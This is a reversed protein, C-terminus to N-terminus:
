IKEGDLTIGNGLSRGYLDSHEPNVVTGQTLTNGSETINTMTVTGVNATGVIIGVRWGDSNVEDGNAYSITNGTATCNSVTATAAFQGAIAGTSNGGIITSGTVSCGTVTAPTSTYGILGGAYGDTCEVSSDVLKCNNLVVGGSADSYGVFAGLGLGNYRGESIAADEITLDNITLTGDGAFSGMMLPKDLNYITHGNGNITVDNVGSYNKPSFVEWGSANFDQTIEIIVAGEKGDAALKFAEKLEEVTGPTVTAVFNSGNVTNTDNPASWEGVIPNVDFDADDTYNKYNHTKDTILTVQNAANNTVNAGAYGVIGGIDRYGKVTTNEVTCGTVADNAAIYGAIGGAKDGNDWKEGFLKAATTISSNTVKCNSVVMGGVTENSSYGVIAGAYHSSIVTANDINVNQVKGTISGFLGASAYEGAGGAPIAYMNSITHGKGDFTGAFTVSPYKDVRGAPIWTRGKLDMDNDLVVTKGAFTNGSNVEYAFRFMDAVTVLHIVGAEDVYYGANEDYDNSSSDFEETYQTAIVTISIGDITLNQYENGADEKMHGSIVLGQTATNPKLPTVAGFIAADLPTAVGTNQPTVYWEIAENLKADGQIGTIMIQYKLWLNGNNVIRLAPLEYTCGPEWLKNDDKDKFELTKGEANVWTGDVLMELGVDLTGSQITNVGTSATDTFWAFTTSALMSLCIVLSLISALLARKTTKTNTM